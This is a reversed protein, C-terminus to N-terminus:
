RRQMASGKKPFLDYMFVTLHLRGKNSKWAVKFPFSANSLSGMLTELWGKQIDVFTGSFFKCVLSFCHGYRIFM